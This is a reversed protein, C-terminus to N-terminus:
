APDTEGTPKEEADPEKPKEASEDIAKDNIEESVAAAKQKELNIVRDVM